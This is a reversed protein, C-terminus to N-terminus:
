TLPLRARCCPTARFDAVQYSLRTAEGQLPGVDGDPGAGVRRNWGKVHVQEGPRYMGRDDFVMWSLSDQTASRRWGDGGGWYPSQPLIANDAGSQAVLLGANAADPLPLTALGEGGTAGSVQTGLLSLEVGSLPAGDALSNAWALMKTGDVFADLGIRSSQVWAEVAPHQDPDRQPQPDILVVLQGLGNTLAPSLDVPTEILQDPASQVDISTSLVQRGPPAPRSSPDQGRTGLWTLYAPWDGPTVAFARVDLRDFNTTFVPLQPKSATPDLVILGYGLATIAQPASGVAFTVSQDTGLTGGFQDKLSSKVTVTYTTRGRSLGQIQITDGYVNINAGPLAPAIGVLSDDFAAPDLPNSFRISWPAFPPCENNWNCGSDVIRLPGYTTFDFSQTTQTTRPGEASPTGPGITVEVKQDGPFPGGAKFALWRGAGAADALRQVAEDAKVEAPTALRLPFASGGATAAMTALVAAPDVRQDFAAFMLPDLPQPGGGPYSAELQPPPTDFTFTLADALVGGTASTTGAPVTATYFTAMPLRTTGPGNAGSLATGNAGSLAPEHQGSPEFLLTQAGVWRWAGDPQPSLRVPLAWQALAEQSSVAVMPQSFTLSLYPALPVDGEPSYRLM